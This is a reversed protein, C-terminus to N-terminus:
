RSPRTTSTAPFAVKPAPGAAARAAQCAGISPRQDVPVPTGWFDRAGNDPIVVGAAFCPSNRPTRFATLQALKHPDDSLKQTPLLLQPDAYLGLIRVGLREQGTAHAWEALSKYGGLDPEQKGPSWWLNGEFRAHSYDGDVLAHTSVFINNKLVVGPMPEGGFGVAAGHETYITNNH